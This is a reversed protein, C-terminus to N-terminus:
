SHSSKTSGTTSEVEGAKEASSKKRGRDRRQGKSKKSNADLPEVLARKPSSSSTIQSNRVEDKANLEEGKELRQLSTAGMKEEHRVSAAVNPTSEAKRGDSSEPQSSHEKRLRNNNRRRERMRKKREAKRVAVPARMKPGKVQKEALKKLQAAMAEERRERKIDKIEALRKLEGERDNKLADRDAKKKAKLVSKRAHESLVKLSDPIDKVAEKFKPRKRSENEQEAKLQWKNKKKPETLPFYKSVKEYPISKFELVQNVTDKEAKMKKKRQRRAKLRAQRNLKKTLKIKRALTRTSGEAAEDGIPDTSPTNEFDMMLINEPGPAEVVRRSSHANYFTEVPKLGLTPIHTPKYQEMAKALLTRRIEALMKKRKKAANEVDEDSSLTEENQGSEYNTNELGSRKRKRDAGHIVEKAATIAKVAEEITNQSEHMNPTDIGQFGRMVKWEGLARMVEVRAVHEGMGIGMAFEIIDSEFEAKEESIDEDEEIKLIWFWHSHAFHQVKKELKTIEKSLKFPIEVGTGLTVSGTSSDISARRLLVIEEEPAFPLLEKIFEKEEPIIDFDEFIDQDEDEAGEASQEEREGVEKLEDVFDEASNENGSDGVSQTDEFPSSPIETEGTPTELKQAHMKGLGQGM